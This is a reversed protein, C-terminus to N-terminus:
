PAPGEADPLPYVEGGAKDADNGTLHGEHGDPGEGGLGGCHGCQRDEHCPSHHDDQRDDRVATPPGNLAVASPNAHISLVRSETFSEAGGSLHLPLLGAEKRHEGPDMGGLLRLAQHLLQPALVGPGAM